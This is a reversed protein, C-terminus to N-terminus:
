NNKLKKRRKLNERLANSLKIKYHKKELNKQIKKGAIKNLNTENIKLVEDESVELCNIKSKSINEINKENNKM